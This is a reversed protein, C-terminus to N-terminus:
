GGCAADFGTTTIQEPLKRWLKTFKRSFARPLCCRLGALFDAFLHDFFRPQSDFGAALHLFDGGLAGLSGHAVPRLPAHLFQLLAGAGLRWRGFGIDVRVILFNNIGEALVRRM